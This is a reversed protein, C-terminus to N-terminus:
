FLNQISTHSYQVAIRNEPNVDVTYLVLIFIWELPKMLFYIIDALHKSYIHKSIPYGISNYIARVVRHSVPTKKELVQEFANAICFQRNVLVRHGHRMGTRIPKVVKGHGNAAVTCLYHEDYQINQPFMKQSM